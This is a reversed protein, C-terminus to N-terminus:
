SLLELFNDSTSNLEAKHAQFPYTRHVVTDDSVSSLKPLM